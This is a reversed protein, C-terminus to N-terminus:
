QINYKKRIRNNIKFPKVLHNDIDRTISYSDEACKKKEDAATEATKSMLAHILQNRSTRWPEIRAFVGKISNLDLVRIQTYLDHMYGSKAITRKRKLNKIYLDVENDILVAEQETMDILANILAIKVSLDKIKISWKEDKKLLKRMYPYTMRNIKLEKQERTVIGAHHLFAVLRDEIIAYGIAIAELYFTEKLAKNFQRYEISYSLQKEKGTKVTEMSIM